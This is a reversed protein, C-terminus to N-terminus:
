MEHNYSTNDSTFDRESHIFLYVLVFWILGFWNKISPQLALGSTVFGLM